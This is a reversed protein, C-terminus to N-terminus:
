PMLWLALPTTAFSLPIGIGVMLAALPPDLRHEAALIAGSVMPAMCAQLVTVNRVLPAMGPISLMLLAILAPALVLKYGLGLGLARSHHRLHGLRLQFGVSFLALPTLMDGLRKLLEDLWVPYAFPRLVLAVLLAIFPPFVLLRKFLAGLGLGAGASARAAFVTALTGLVMFSGLQDIVVAIGVSERGLLAETMPLGVFATNSLGATLVLCAASERSLGLREGLGRFLLVALVFILWPTAAAIILGPAFVLAHVARMVLAPMAVNLVFANLANPTTEPFRGSRRSLAGLVLCAGLIGIIKSM